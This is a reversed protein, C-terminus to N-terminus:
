LAFVPYFHQTSFVKQGSLFEYDFKNGSINIDLYADEEEITFGNGPLINKELSTQSENFDDLNIELLVSNRQTNSLLSSDILLDEM